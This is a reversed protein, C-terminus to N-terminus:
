SVVARTIITEQIGGYAKHAKVTATLTVWDGDIFEREGSAFWTLVNGDETRFRVITTVGFEGDTSRSGVVQVRLGRLREGEKGIHHSTSSAARVANDVFRKYAAYASVLLGVNRAGVSECAAVARLNQVYESDGEMGAVFAILNAADDVRRGASVRIAHNWERQDVTHWVNDLVDTVQDATAQYGTDRAETRSMWGTEAIVALAVELVQRTNYRAEGRPGKWGLMMEDVDPDFTLIAFGAPKIGCFRELCGSGVQLQAGTADEIVLYTDKRDRVTHCIDCHCTDPRHALTIGPVLRTVLGAEDDWTLTGAFTYGALKIPPTLLDLRIYDEYRAVLFEDEGMYRAYETVTYYLSVEIGAKAARRECAAIRRQMEPYLYAPFDYSWGDVPTGENPDAAPGAMMNDEPDIRTNANM